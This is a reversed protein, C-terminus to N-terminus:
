LITLINKNSMKINKNYDLWSVSRFVARHNVWRAFRKQYPDHKNYPMIYPLAGRASLKMVRHYDEDPTTDYGILVFFQMNKAPIGADECRDIGQFILDEDNIKDWAFTIYKNKFNTMRYNTRSLLAAQKSTIIRINLGQAFCVKLDLERIRNIDNEWNPSGFFDNDLLMLKNTANPNILLNDITSAHHPRGEKKPVVCFSCNFRCGRMTFGIHYDIDWLSYSPISHEIDNPLKSQLSIGTGGMICGDPLDIPMPSFEFIKSAYVKSYRDMFMNGLYKEVKDGRSEHYGVVKMLAYNPLKGDIQYIGIM